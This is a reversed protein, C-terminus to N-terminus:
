FLPSQRLPVPQAWELLLPYLKDINRTSDPVISVKVKKGPLVHAFLERDAKTAKAQNDLDLNKVYEAGKAPDQIIGVMKVIDDVVEGSYRRRQTSGEEWSDNYDLRYTLDGNPTSLTLAVKNSKRKNSTVYGGLDLLKIEFSGTINRDAKFVSKGATFSSINVTTLSGLTKAM